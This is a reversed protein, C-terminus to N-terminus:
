PGSLWAARPRMSVALIAARQSSMHLTATDIWEHSTEAWSTVRMIERSPLGVGSPWAM